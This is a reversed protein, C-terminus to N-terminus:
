LAEKSSKYYQDESSLYSSVEGVVCLLERSVYVWGGEPNSDAVWCALPRLDV